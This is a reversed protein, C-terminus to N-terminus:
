KFYSMYGELIELIFKESAPLINCDKYEIKYCNDKVKVIKNEPGSALLIVTNQTSNQCTIYPVKKAAAYDPNVVAGRVDMDGFKILFQTLEVVSIINHNCTPDSANLSLYVPRQKLFTINQPNVEVNIFDSDRPDERFDIAFSSSIQKKEILVGKEPIFNITPVRTSYFNVAGQKTKHFILGNYDFRNFIANNVIPAIFIILLIAAMFFIVWIIQKNQKKKNGESKEDPNYNNTDSPSANDISGSIGTENNILGEHNKQNKEDKKIKM